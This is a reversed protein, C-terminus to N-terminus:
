RVRVVNGPRTQRRPRPRVQPRRNRVNGAFDYAELAALAEPALRPRSISWEPALKDLYREALPAIDERRDRLPPMRLEIVNIRYYLDQRFEGSRGTSGSGQPHRQRRTRRGAIESRAGIARVSKEQIVRLLKVQM